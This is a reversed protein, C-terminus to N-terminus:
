ATKSPRTKPAPKPPDSFFTSPAVAATGNIFEHLQRLQPEVIECIAREAEERAVKRLQKRLEGLARQMDLARSQRFEPLWREIASMTVRLHVRPSDKRRLRTAIKRNLEDERAVIARRLRRAAAGDSGQGCRRAAARLTLLKRDDGEDSM